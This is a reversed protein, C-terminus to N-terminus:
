VEKARRRDLSAKLARPYESMSSRASLSHNAGHVRRWLVHEQVTVEGLDLERARLMWDLTEAVRLGAAFPGVREYATRRVMMSAPTHAPQSRGLPVPRGDVCRGFSRVHGYAIDLEPRALLVEIRCEISRPTLLDDADLPVLFDGRALAMAHSRAAGAGRHPRPVVRVPSGFSQAVRATADESGDDLVIVDAVPYTQALVSDLAATLFRESNFAPVAVGVASQDGM